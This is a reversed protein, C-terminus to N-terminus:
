PCGADHKLTRSSVTICRPFLLALCLSRFLMQKFLLCVVVVEFEDETM